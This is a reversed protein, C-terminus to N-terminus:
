LCGHEALYKLGAKVQEQSHSPQIELTRIADKPLYRAVMGFDIEGLGPAQHDHLGKVDHLHVELMRSAYRRLWEEHAYFGLRALHEAHGV